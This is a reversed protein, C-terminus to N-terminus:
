FQIFVVDMDLVWGWSGVDICELSMREELFFGQFIEVMEWVNYNGVERVM